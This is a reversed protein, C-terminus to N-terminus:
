GERSSASRASHAQGDLTRVGWGLIASVVTSYVVVGAVSASQAFLVEPQGTFILGSRTALAGLLIVGLSSAVVLVWASTRLTIVARDTRFYAIAATAAGAVVGTIAAGAPNLYACGATVAALGCVVGWGVASWSTEARRIRQVILWAAVSFVPAILANVVIRGTATDIVLELGVLWSIWLPWVAIVAISAAPVTRRGTGAPRDAGDPRKARLLLLSLIGCGPAILAPLAGGLDLTRLAAGLIGDTTSFVAIGVVSYVLASWLVSFGILLPLPVDRLPLSALGSALAALGTAPVILRPDFEPRSIVLVIVWGVAGAVAAAGTRLMAPRRWPSGPDILVALAPALLVAAISAVVTLATVPLEM